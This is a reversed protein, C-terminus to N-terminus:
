DTSKEKYRYLGLPCILVQSMVFIFFYLWGGDVFGYSHLGVGMLNVGFWAWAGVINGVVAMALFVRDSCLRLSKAHITASIWLVVMLAGNEKPDWGWFRGWSMDAWIGGLMTGAFSFVLAFCLVAYVSNATDSTLRGFNERSYVNAVLRLWAMFGALFLGCYGVMITVVHITLWFNSNLVARMMGMTDGSYPLNMAVLLSLLGTISSALAFSIMKRKVFMVLGVLASCLGAFVVSSYLNTVPPRMQIYMRAIIGFAHEAVAVVLLVFAITALSEKRSRWIGSLVLSLISLGYLIFGCFFPDLANVINEFKIKLFNVDTSRKLEKKLDVLLTRALTENENAIADKIEAYLLLVRAGETKKIMRRVGLDVSEFKKNSPIINLSTNSDEFEALRRLARLYENAPVLKSHDPDRKQLQANKFEDSANKVALNWKDISTKASTEGDFRVGFANCASAYELGANIASNCARSYHSDGESDKWLKQYNDAFSNYSYNRKEANLVKQLDKNDTRFFKEEASKEPNANITWLWKTASIKGNSTKATNKGSISKLIDSSASSIPMTRGARVVPLESLSSTFISDYLSDGAWIQWVFLPAFMVFIAIFVGFSLAM